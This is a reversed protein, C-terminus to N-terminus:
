LSRSSRSRRLVLLGKHGAGCRLAIREHQVRTRGAARQPRQARQLGSGLRASRRRSRAAAALVHPCACSLRRRPRPGPCARRKGQVRGGAGQGDRREHHERRDAGGGACVAAQRARDVPIAHAGGAQGGDHAARDGKCALAFGAIPRVCVFVSRPACCCLARLDPRVAVHEDFHAMFAWLKLRQALRPVQHHCAHARALRVCFTCPRM